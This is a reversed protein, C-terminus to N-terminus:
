HIDKKLLYFDDRQYIMTGDVYTLVRQRQIRLGYSRNSNNPDKNRYNENIEDEYGM